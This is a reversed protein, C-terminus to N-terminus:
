TRKPAILVNNYVISSMIHRVSEKSLEGYRARDFVSKSSGKMIKRELLDPDHAERLKQLIASQEWIQQYSRTGEGPTFFGPQGIGKQRKSFWKRPLVNRATILFEYIYRNKKLSMNTVPFHIDRTRKLLPYIAQNFLRGNLKIRQSAVRAIEIIKRDTYIEFGPFNFINSTLNSNMKNRTFPWIFSWEYASGDSRLNKWYAMLDKRRKTVEDLIDDNFVGSYQKIYESGGRLYRMPTKDFEELPGCHRGFVHKAHVKDEHLKLLSDSMYGGLLAQLGLPNIEEVFGLYGAWEHHIHGGEQRQCEGMLRPYYEPECYLINHQLGLRSAVHSAIETEYNIEDCFTFAEARDCNEAILEAIARSDIGGSLFLGIKSKNAVAQEVSAIVSRRLEISLDEINDSSESALCTPKWYQESIFEIKTRGYEVRNYSAFPLERVDRYFTNPYTISRNILYDTVSVYDVQLKDRPSALKFLAEIKTSFYFRGRDNSFFYYPHFSNGLDTIIEIVKEHENHIIILFNGALHNGWEAPKYKRMLVRALPAGRSSGLQSNEPPQVQFGYPSPAGLFYVKLHPEIQVPAFGEYHNSGNLTSKGDYVSIDM